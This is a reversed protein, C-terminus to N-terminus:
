ESSFSTLTDTIQVIKPSIKSVIHGVRIKNQSTTQNQQEPPPTTSHPFNQIGFLNQLSHGQFCQFVYFVSIQTETEIFYLRSTIEFDLPSYYVELYGYRSMDSKSFQPFVLDFLWM